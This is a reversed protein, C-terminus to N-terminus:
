SALRAGDRVDSPPETTMAMASHANCLPKQNKMHRRVLQRGKRGKMLFRASAPRHGNEQLDPFLLFLEELAAPDIAKLAQAGTYLSETLAGNAIVIEHQDFMMHYYVVSSVDTAMDIGDIKRLHKAAVLAEAEGCMRQTIKSRVLMRHQPSVLLDKSPMQEGLAGQRIRIPRLNPFFVMEDARVTRAKIWRVPQLGRNVTYVLDGAKLNEIAVDGRDTCIMTGAAFCVPNSPDVELDVPYVQDEYIGPQAIDDAPGIVYQVNPDLPQNTALGIITHDDNADGDNRALVYLEIENTPNAPDHILITYLFVVTENTALTTDGFLTTGINVSLNQDSTIGTEIPESLFELDVSGVDAAVGGTMEVTGRWVNGAPQNDNTLVTNSVTNGSDDQLAFTFDRFDYMYIVPM